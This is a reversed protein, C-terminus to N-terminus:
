KVQHNRHKFKDWFYLLTDIPHIYIMKPGSYRMVDIIQNRYNRNYCHITCKSCVPKDEAFPCALLRHFTYELLNSCDVCLENTNHQDECFKKIMLNVLRKERDLRKNM